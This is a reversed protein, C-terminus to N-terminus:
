YLACCRTNGETEIWMILSISLPQSLPADIEKATVESNEGWRTDEGHVLVTVM